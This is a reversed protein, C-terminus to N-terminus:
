WRTDNKMLILAKRMTSKELATKLQDINEIAKEQYEIAEQKRGLRYLLHAYTDLYYPSTAEIALSEKSWSLAKQLLEPKDAGVYEYNFWAITNLNNGLMSLYPNLLVEKETDDVDAYGFISLVYALEQYQTAHLKNYADIAKGLNNGTFNDLYASISNITRQNLEDYELEQDRNFCYIIFPMLLEKTSPAADIIQLFSDTADFDLSLRQIMKNVVFTFLEGKEETQPANEYANFLYIFAPSLQNNDVVPYKRDTRELVNKILSIHEPTIKEKGYFKSILLNLYESAEEHNLEMNWAFGDSDYNEFYLAVDDLYIDPLGAIINLYKELQKKDVSKANKMKPSLVGNIYQLNLGAKFVNVDEIFFRFASNYICSNSAYIVEEEASLVIMAPYTSVDYKKFLDKDKEEVQYFAFSDNFNEVKNYSRLMEKYAELTYYDCKDSPEYYLLIFKNDKKAATLAEKYSNYTTLTSQPAEVVVVRDLDDIEIDGKLTFLRSNSIFEFGPVLERSDSQFLSEDVENGMFFLSVSESHRGDGLNVLLENNNEGKYAKFLNFFDDMKGRENEKIILENSKKPIPYACVTISGRYDLDSIFLSDGRMTTYTFGNDYDGFQNEVIQEISESKEISYENGVYISMESYPSFKELKIRIKGSEVDPTNGHLVYISAFNKDSTLLLTDQKLEYSGRIQIQEKEREDDYRHREELIFAWRNNAGISFNIRADSIAFKYRGVPYNNNIEQAFCSLSFCLFLFPYVLKRM